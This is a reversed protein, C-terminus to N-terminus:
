ADDEDPVARLAGHAERLARLLLVEGGSEPEAEPQAKLATAGVARPVVNGFIPRVVRPAPPAPPVAGEGKAAADLADLVSALQGIPTANLLAHAAKTHKLLQKGRRGAEQAAAADDFGSDEVCPAEGLLAGDHGYVLLPRGKLDDPDFRATVKTGRLRALFEAHYRNGLLQLTSDPRVTLAEAALLWHSRQEATARRIPARAYSEEFVAQYSQGFAVGGRRGAQANHQTIWEGVVQRFLAVPVAASAYNEPKALPNNGTWAGAFAPHRACDKACEGFFREIPKSQGSYPKTFHVEVGLGTLLGLPEDDRVKFRYRTPAGGCIWKSAFHRGNDMYAADPIGYREVLDGFALRVAHRNETRDLRWSLVLRSYIDQFAVMVPRGVTGDEWRVFVDWIHGDANVAQLAHLIHVHRRQAPYMRKLAEEGDRYLTVVEPPLAEVRRLVTRNSPIQWGKGEGAKRVRRICAELTPRELRLYDGLLETWADPTFPAETAADNHHRPALWYKWDARPCGRVMGRWDYLTRQSVGAALAVQQMAALTPVGSRELAAVQDLAAAAREAKDKRHQPLRDFADAMGQRTAVSVSPGQAEGQPFRLAVAARAAEPLISWHYEPHGGRGARIRWHVGEYGPEQWGQESAIRRLSRDTTPLGPLALGALETTTFWEKALRGEQMDPARPRLQVAQADGRREGTSGRSSQLAGM